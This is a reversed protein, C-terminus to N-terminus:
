VCRSTYLLCTELLAKHQKILANEPVTLINVFDYKTLSELEVRIPFRGQREPLHTYSVPLLSEFERGEGQCPSARGRLWKRM